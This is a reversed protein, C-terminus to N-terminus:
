GPNPDPYSDPAIGQLAAKGGASVMVIAVVGGAALQKELAIAKDKPAFFAEIGYKLQQQKRGTSPHQLRGRIFLGATPISLSVGAVQAIGAQQDLLVYVVEGHRLDTLGPFLDSDIRAIEYDLRAYHGRFLSRPDVPMTALRVAQGTWLPMAASVYMGGLVLVQALAALILWQVTKNMNM